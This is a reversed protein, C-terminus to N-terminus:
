WDALELRDVNLHPTKPLVEVQELFSEVIRRM